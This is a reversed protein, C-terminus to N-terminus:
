PSYPIRPAISSEGSRSGSGFRREGPPRVRQSTPSLAAGSRTPSPSAFWPLFPM